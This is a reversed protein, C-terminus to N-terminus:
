SPSLWLTFTSLCRTELELQSEDSAEQVNRYKRAGGGDGGGGGGGWDEGICHSESTDVWRSKRPPQM